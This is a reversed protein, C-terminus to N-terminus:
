RVEGVRGAALRLRNTICRPLEDAHHTVFILTADTQGIVDDVANLVCKRYHGDLGQCPEDLILLPPSTVMARALLVLRQEGDSLRGFPEGALNDLGLGRLWRRALRRQRDSAARYMGISAFFGSCVVSLVDVDATYHYHLEPALWGIRRRIEWSSQGPGRRRGFVEVDNAYCQPNDGLILSLLPSKGSGNPGVLLWRQGALITWDIGGLIQTRGYRVAVNRLRVVPTPTARSSSTGSARRSPRSGKQTGVVGQRASAEPPRPRMGRRPRSADAADLRGILERGRRGRRAATAALRHGEVYAVHTICPLVEDPRHTLLLLQTGRGAVERLIRRLAPRSSRDLGAFPNDLVLLAPWQVLARALLVKRMEGNSLHTIERVLLGDLGLLRAIENVRRAPPPRDGDIGEITERATPATIKEIPSWRAQHYALVGAVLRRHQDISVVQIAGDPPGDADTRVRGAKGLRYVIQGQVVPVDSCLARVLTSKGSGNPGLVAWHQGREITWDTQEFCVRGEARLTVDQFSVVPKHRRTTM